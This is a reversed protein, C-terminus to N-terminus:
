LIANCKALLAPVIRRDSGFGHSGDESVQPFFEPIQILEVACSNGYSWFCVMSFACCVQSGARRVGLWTFGPPLFLFSPPFFFFSFLLVSVRPKFFSSNWNLWVAFSFLGLAQPDMYSLFSFKLVWCIQVGSKRNDWGLEVVWKVKKYDRDWEQSKGTRGWVGIGQM